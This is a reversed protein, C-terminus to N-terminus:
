ELTNRHLSNIVIRIISKRVKTRYFIFIVNQDIFKLLLLISSNVEVRDLSLQIRCTLLRGLARVKSQKNEACVKAYDQGRVFAQEKEIQRRLM